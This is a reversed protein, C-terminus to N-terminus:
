QYKKLINYLFVYNEAAKEKALEAPLSNIYNKLEILTGYNKSSASVNALTSCWKKLSETQVARVDKGTLANLVQLNADILQGIETNSADSGKIEFIIKSNEIGNENLKKVVAEAGQEQYIGLLVRTNKTEEISFPNGYTSLLNKTIEVNQKAEYVGGQIAIFKVSGNEDNNAVNVNNTTSVNDSINKNNLAEININNKVFAQFLITGIVFALVLIIIIIFMFTFNDNKKKKIDYRTYRM